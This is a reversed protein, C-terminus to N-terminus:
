RVDLSLFVFYVFAFSSFANSSAFICLMIEFFVARVNDQADKDVGFKVLEKVCDTHGNRCAYVLATYGDQACLPYIMCYM